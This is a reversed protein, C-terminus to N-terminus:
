AAAGTGAMAAGRSFGGRSLGARVCGGFDWSACEFARRRRAAMQRCDVDSHRDDDFRKTRHRDSLSAAPVAGRGCRRIKWVQFKKRGANSDGKHHQRFCWPVRGCIVHLNRYVHCGRVRYVSPLMEGRQRAATAHFFWDVRGSRHPSLVPVPRGGATAIRLVDRGHSSSVALSNMISVEGRSGFRPGPWKDREGPGRKGRASRM